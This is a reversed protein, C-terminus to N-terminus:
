VPDEIRVESFGKWASRHFQRASLSRVNFAVLDEVLQFLEANKHFCLAQPFFVVVPDVLPGELEAAVGVVQRIAFLVRAIGGVDLAVPRFARRDLQQYM